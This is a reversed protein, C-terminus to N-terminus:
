SSKLKLALMAIVKGNFVLDNKGLMLYDRIHESQSIAYTISRTIARDTCRHNQALCAYIDILKVSYNESKMVIAELLFTFGSLHPPISCDTVLKAALNYLTQNKM